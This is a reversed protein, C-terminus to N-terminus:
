WSPKCKAPLGPAASVPGKKNWQGVDGSKIRNFDFRVSERGNFQWGKCFTTLQQSLSWRGSSAFQKSGPWGKSMALWCYDVLKKKL